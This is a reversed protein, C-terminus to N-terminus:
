LGYDSGEGDLIARLESLHLTAADPYTEIQAATHEAVNDSLIRLPKGTQLALVYTRAAREFYYLRTFADAVSDGLVTIGHNGMVMVKVKPDAMLSACRAGESEMALGAYSDDVVHRNYFQVTNQDIPPVTSVALSALTTSYTPHAHLICRAHPVMTHMAAHLGWATPDLGIQTEPDDMDIELLDSARIRAFHRKPNILFRRGTDDLALSFHNAVAEHMDLRATWRLAAALDRRAERHMVPNSM